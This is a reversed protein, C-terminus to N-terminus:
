LAVPPLGSPNDRILKTFRHIRELCRSKGLIEIVEFINPSFTRGTIALRLPHVYDAFKRGGVTAASRFKEELVMASFVVDSELLKAADELIPLNGAHLHKQLGEPEYVHVDGLFYLIQDGVENITKLNPKVLALMRKLATGSTNMFDDDIGGMDWLYELCQQFIFEDDTKRIYAGNMWQLKTYDFSAPAKNVRELGFNKVLDARSMIETKGDLSWGLLALYNVLADPLYGLRKFESVSSAGHRKSLPARDAGLILPLHAFQPIEYGLAQYLLIQKPTNTIHDEGRIVHTMRMSADDVAVVFNYTPEGGSRVLIFDDLEAHDITVEGRILDKFMTSAGEPVKMRMAFPQKAKKKEEVEQATLNRCRGSYRYGSGSAMTREREAELDKQNCFCPYAAGTSILRKLHDRYLAARETQRYPGFPGGISPGEDWNLGLWQLDKLIGEEYETRSRERDTDEIRLIFKGGHRRAFLWNFLATRAGGVHL